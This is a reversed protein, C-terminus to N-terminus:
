ICFKLCEIIYLHTLFLFPLLTLFWFFSLSKSFVSENVQSLSYMNYLLWLVQFGYAISLVNAHYIRVWVSDIREM